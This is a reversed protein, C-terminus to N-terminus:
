SRPRATRALRSIPWQARSCRSLGTHWASGGLLLAGSLTAKCLWAVLSASDRQVIAPCEASPSPVTAPGDQAAVAEKTAREQARKERKRLKDKERMEAVTQRRKRPKLEIVEGM